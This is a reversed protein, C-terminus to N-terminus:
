THQAAHLTGGIGNRQKAASAALNLDRTHNKFGLQFNRPIGCGQIALSKPMWITASHMGISRAGIKVQRLSDDDM